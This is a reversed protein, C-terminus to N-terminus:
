IDDMDEILQHADNHTGPDHGSARAPTTDDRSSAREYVVSSPLLVGM